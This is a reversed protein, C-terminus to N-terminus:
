ICLPDYPDKSRETDTTMEALLEYFFILLAHQLTLGSASAHNTVYIQYRM